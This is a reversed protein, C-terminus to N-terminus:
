PLRFIGSGYGCYRVCGLRTYGLPLVYIPLFGGNSATVGPAAHPTKNAFHSLPEAAGYFVLGIGMGASFLMAIWSGTSYEPKSDPEGLKIQGM